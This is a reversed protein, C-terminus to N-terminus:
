IVNLDAECRFEENVFSIENQGYRMSNKFTIRNLFFIFNNLKM